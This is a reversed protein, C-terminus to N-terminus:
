SRHLSVPVYKVSGKGLSPCLSSHCWPHNENDPFSHPKSVKGSKARLDPQFPLLQQQPLPCSVSAGGHKQTWGMLVCFAASASAVTLSGETAWSGWSLAGAVMYLNGTWLCVLNPCWYQGWMYITSNFLFLSLFYTPFFPPSPESLISVTSYINYTLNFHLNLNWFM